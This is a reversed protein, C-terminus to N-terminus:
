GSRCELILRGRSVQGSEMMQHALAAEGLPLTAAIQPRLLGGAAMELLKQVPERADQVVARTVRVPCARDPAVIPEALLYVLHGDERLIQHSLAHVRGGVFDFVVDFGRLQSFDEEDYAIAHHAGLSRVYDRNAARCTTSVEAGRQRALQIAIGGVAGAGGHIMVRAGPRLEASAALATWASLGANVLSAAEAFVLGAPMPVLETATCLRQRAYTGFAAPPAMICVNEGISFGDVGDGVAVVTGAGDRGPVKPLDLPFIARALGARLKCDLPTVSAAKVEVLIEGPDPSPDPLDVLELLEPDGYRSFQIAQV